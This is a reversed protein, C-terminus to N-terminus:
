PSLWNEVALGKIGAYREEDTTVMILQNAMACAAVLVDDMSAAKEMGSVQALIDGAVVAEKQGLAVVNIRSIIERNIRAWFEEFDARLSCGFRLESVCLCSTFLSHVPKSRLRSIMHPNPSKKMLESLINTDLLYM